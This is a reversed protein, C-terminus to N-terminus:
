MAVRQHPDNQETAVMKQRLPPWAIHIMVAHHKALDRAEREMNWSEESLMLIQKPSPLQLPSM